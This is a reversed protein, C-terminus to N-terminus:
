LSPTRGAFGDGHGLEARTLTCVLDVGSLSDAIWRTVAEQLPPLLELHRVPPSPLTVLGLEAAAYMLNRVHTRSVGSREAAITYFGRPVRPPIKGRVMAMMVILVRIGVDRSLFFGIAPNGSVIKEAFGTTSLSVKRYAVQYAPDRAMAARYGPDDPYLVALPAHFTALWERDAALMKETPRLSHARRDAVSVERTLFGDLELGNVLEAVRRGDTIGMPALATRLRALTVDTSPDDPDRVADLCVIIMFTVARVYEVLGRILRRDESYLALFEDIFCDYAEPFRPHNRIVDSTLFAVRQWPPVSHRETQESPTTM